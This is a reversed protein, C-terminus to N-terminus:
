RDPLWSGHLGLPVRRPLHIRAIPEATFDQAALIVLDGAGRRPDHVYGMVYGDDEARGGAAPVFVAEGVAADREFTHVESTGRVTDHKILANVFAEDPLPGDGAPVYAQYMAATAATYGYRHPRSVVTDAIRPFEQPRDDLRQECVTGASLDVTWRDLTGYRSMRMAAIDFDAPLTVLELVVREGDDYANLTHSVFADPAEFWRVGGGARPLVGVRSPRRPDRTYPTRAGTSMAEPSFVVPSDYVVVWRETLAFDHMMPNGDLPIEAEHVLRGAGDVVLHRATRRGSLYALGHLEGTLPDLKTHAGMTFGPRVGGLAYPGVTDLEATLEQPCAWDEMLALTRGGHGIVHTNCAFDIGIECAAGGSPEGLLGRVQESRVWRNRYWEARGDRIRVGHVMGPGSMWHHAAPDEVGLANPGIRLYRGALEGPVRGTVPLDFATVEEDVPAFPGALFRSM